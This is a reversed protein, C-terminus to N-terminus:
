KVEQHKTTFRLVLDLCTHKTVSTWQNNTKITLQIKSHISHHNSMILIKIIIMKDKSISIRNIGIIEMTKLIIMDEEIMTVKTIDEEVQGEEEEAEVERLLPLDKLEITIEITHKIISISMTKITIIQTTTTIIVDESLIIMM